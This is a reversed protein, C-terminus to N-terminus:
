SEILRARLHEVVAAPVQNSLLFEDVSGHAHRIHALLELM